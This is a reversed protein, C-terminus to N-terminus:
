SKRKHIWIERSIDSTALWKILLSPYKKITHTMNNLVPVQLHPVIYHGINLQKTPTDLTKMQILSQMFTGSM